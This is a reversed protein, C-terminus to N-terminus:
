LLFGGMIKLIKQYIPVRDLIILTRRNTNHLPRSNYPTFGKYLFVNSRNKGITAGQDFWVLYRLVM